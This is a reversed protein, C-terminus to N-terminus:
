AALVRRIRELTHWAGRPGARHALEGIIQRLRSAHVSLLRYRSLGSIAQPPLALTQDLLRLEQGLWASLGEQSSLTLEAPTLAGRHLDPPAVFALRPRPRALRQALAEAVPAPLAHVLLATEFQPQTLTPIPSLPVGATWPASVLPRTFIPTAPSFYVRSM